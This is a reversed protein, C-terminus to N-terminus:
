VENWLCLVQMPSQADITLGQTALNLSTASDTAFDLRLLDIDFFEGAMRATVKKMQTHCDVNMREPTFFDSVRFQHETQAKLRLGRSTMSVPLHLIGDVTNDDLSADLQLGSVNIQDYIGSTLNMSVNCKMAPSHIDIGKGQAHIQGALEVHTSDKLFPTLNVEELDM